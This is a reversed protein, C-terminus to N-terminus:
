QVVKYLSAQQMVSIPYSSVQYGVAEGTEEKNKLVSMTIM